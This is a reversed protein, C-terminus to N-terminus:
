HNFFYQKIFFIIGLIINPFLAYYSEKINLNSLIIFLIYLFSHVLKLDHWWVEGGFFGKDAKNLYVRIFGLTMILYLIKYYFLYQPLNIVLYILFIRVPICLLIFLLIRKLKLDM